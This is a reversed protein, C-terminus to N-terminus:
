CVAVTRRARGTQEQTTSEHRGVAATTNPDRLQHQQPGDPFREVDAGNEVFVFVIVSM